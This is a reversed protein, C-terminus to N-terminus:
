DSARSRRQAQLLRWSWRILWTNAALVIAFFGYVTIRLWTHERLVQEIEQDLNPHTRPTWDHLEPLIRPIRTDIAHQWGLPLFATCLYLESLTLLVLLTVLSAKKM